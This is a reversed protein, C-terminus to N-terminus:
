YRRGTFSRGVGFLVEYIIKKLDTASRQTKSFDEEFVFRRLAYLSAINDLPPEPPRPCSRHCSIVPAKIKRFTNFGCTNLFCRPSHQRRSLSRSDATLM